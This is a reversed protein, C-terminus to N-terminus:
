NSGRLLAIMFRIQRKYRAFLNKSKKKKWFSNKTVNAESL